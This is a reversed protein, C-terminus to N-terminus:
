GHHTEGPVSAQGAFGKKRPMPAFGTRRGSGLRQELAQLVNDPVLGEVSAGNSVAGKIITSSIYLWKYDTMLFVTEITQNLRRNM